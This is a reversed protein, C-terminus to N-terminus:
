HVGFMDALNSSWISESSRDICVLALCAGIENRIRPYLKHDTGKWGFSLPRPVQLIDEIRNIVRLWLKKSILGTMIVNVCHLYITPVIKPILTFDITLHPIPKPLCLQRKRIPNRVIDMRANSLLYLLSWRPTHQYVTSMHYRYKLFPRLHECPLESSPNENM